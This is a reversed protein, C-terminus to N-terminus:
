EEHLNGYPNRFEQNYRLNELDADPRLGLASGQPFQWKGMKKRDEPYRKLYAEAARRIIEALPMEQQAALAKLRNYIKDPLQIQTRIMCRNYLATPIIDFLM